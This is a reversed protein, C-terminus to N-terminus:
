PTEEGNEKSKEVEETKKDEPTEEKEMSTKTSEETEEKKVEKETSVERPETEEEAEKESKEEEEEEKKTPSNYEDFGTIFPRIGAIMSARAIAHASIPNTFIILVVAFLAHITIEFEGENMEPLFSLITGATIFLSGLTSAKTGAHLRTYVDPFRIIGVISVFCVFVGLGLLINSLVTM